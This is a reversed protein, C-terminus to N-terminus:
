ADESEGHVRVSGGMDDDAHTYSDSALLRRIQALEFLMQMSHWVPHVRSPRSNLWRVPVEAIRYGLRNALVLIEADFAFGKIRSMKFLRKAVRSDFAKFGCQTDKFSLPLIHRLIWNFIRGMRERYWAQRVQIRSDPHSRSGIVVHYGDGLKKKLPPWEEIPTSLDADMFLVAHGMSETVGARVAEGKGQNKDFRVVRVPGGAARAADSTGDTSGDDVVIIEFREEMSQLYEVVRSLTHPVRAEENYAPIVISLGPRQRSM